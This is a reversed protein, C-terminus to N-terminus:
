AVAPLTAYGRITAGARRRAGPRLRLQPLRASLVRFAIEGELRALPAGLCYHMGSSFSLHYPDGGRGPDFASPNEHAAPDRNAAALLVLVTTGAPVPIEALETDAHAIRSTAQM